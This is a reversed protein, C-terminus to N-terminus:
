LTTHWFHVKLKEDWPYSVSSRWRPGGCNLRGTSQTSYCTTQQTHFCETHTHSLTIHNSQLKNGMWSIPNFDVPWEIPIKKWTKHLTWDLNIANVVIGSNTQYLSFTTSWGTSPWSEIMEEQWFSSASATDHESHSNEKLSNARHTSKWDSSIVYNSSATFYRSREACLYLLDLATRPSAQFEKM